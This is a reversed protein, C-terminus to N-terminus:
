GAIGNEEGAYEEEGHRNKQYLYPIFKIENNLYRLHPEYESILNLSTEDLFTDTVDKVRKSLGHKLGLRDYLDIDFGFIINDTLMYVTNQHKYTIVSKSSSLKRHIKKLSSLNRQIPDVAVYQVDEIFKGYCHELFHVKDLEHYKREEEEAFTWFIDEDFYRELPDIRDVDYFRKVNEWGVILTPLEPNVEELSDYVNFHTYDNYPSYPILNGLKLM